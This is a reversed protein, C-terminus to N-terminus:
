AFILTRAVNTTPASYVNWYFTVRLFYIVGSLILEIVGIFELM